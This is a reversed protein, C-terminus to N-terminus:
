RILVLLWNSFDYFGPWNGTPLPVFLLRGFVLLMLGYIALSTGVLHRWRREGLLLMYGSLFFPTTFYFGTRPLLFVYLLPLGFMALLRLNLGLGAEKLRSWYGTIEATEDRHRRERVGLVFQTIAGIILLIIIVRPWGSAGFRYVQLPEDFKFTLAFVGLLLLMWAALEVVLDRIEAWRGTPAAHQPGSGNAPDPGSSSSPFM